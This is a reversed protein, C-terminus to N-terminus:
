TDIDLLRGFWALFFVRGCIVIWGVASNVYRKGVDSTNRFFEVPNESVVVDVRVM